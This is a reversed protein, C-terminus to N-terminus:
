VVHSKPKIIIYKRTKQNIKEHSKISIHFLAAHVVIGLKM